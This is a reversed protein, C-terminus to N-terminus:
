KSSHSGDLAAAEAFQAKAKETQATKRYTQGLLFHYAATQPALAVAHEFQAQAQPLNGARDYVKGLTMCLKPDDPTLAEAQQLAQLAQAPQNQELLLTGLNIYPQASPHPAGAQWAIAQRYAALADSTRDLGEYTLGLNNEAKVSKPMLALAHQFCTVSETFRNETYKIRGLDYWSEGDQPSWSVVQSMWKDADVYDNALVYDLAVNRLEAANPKRLAAARTYEALSAVPKDERFLCFALLYHADASNDHTRLYTRTLAEAQPFHAADALTHAQQLPDPVSQAQAPSLAAAIVLCTLAICTAHPSPTPTRTM